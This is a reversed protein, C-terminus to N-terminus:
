RGCYIRKARKVDEYQLGRARHGSIDFGLTQMVEVAATAAPEGLTGRVERLEASMGASSLEFREPTPCCDQFWKRAYSLAMPSRCTNHGCIFLVLQRPRATETQATPSTEEMKM